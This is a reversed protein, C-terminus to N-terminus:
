SKYFEYNFDPGLINDINYDKVEEDSLVNAWTVRNDLKGGPGSSNYEEYSATQETVTRDWNHWGEGMIHEGMFCNIFTTKAYDRWPRGLYVSNPAADSLLKCNIFIYGFREGEITSAATIYGNVERERDNSFIVCRNFVATASGFIFDIDGRIYCDEYYQRVPRRPARDKPGGFWDGEKPKPPLPGTFITDQCGIFSCNKFKAKDGDVYIAVAQGYLDGSGSSNEFTINQACFNDGGVFTSFSNFTGMKEGSLSEKYAYDDYTLITNAKSEGLLVVNDVNIYIKEKYIGNKINIVIKEKNISPISNIADQVTKFDGSGDKSVIM